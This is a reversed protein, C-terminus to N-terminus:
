RTRVIRDPPTEATVERAMAGLARRRRTASEEAYRAVESAAVRRHSGHMHARLGGREILRVVTMRSVGLLGAAQQTSIMEDRPLIVAGHGESLVEALRAFAARDERSLDLREIAEFVREVPTGNLTRGM